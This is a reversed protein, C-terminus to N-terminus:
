KSLTIRKKESIVKEGAVITSSLLYVGSPLKPVIAQASGAKSIFKIKEPRMVCKGLVNFISLQCHSGPALNGFSIHLSGNRVQYVIEPCLNFPAKTLGSIFAALRERKGSVMCFDSHDGKVTSVEFDSACQEYGSSTKKVICFDVSGKGKLFSASIRASQTPRDGNFFEFPFVHVDDSKSPYLAIAGSSGDPPRIRIGCNSFSPPTPYLITDGPGDYAGCYITSFEGAATYAFIKISSAASPSKKSVGTSHYDGLLISSPPFRLELASDSPNFVTYGTGQRSFLTDSLSDISLTTGGYILEARYTKNTADAVWRYILLNEAGPGSASLVDSLALPFGFPVGFDTWNHPSLRIAYSSKLTPTLSGGFDIVSSKATILWLLTGPHCFFDTRNVSSYEIWKNTSQANTESPFWRFIRFISADYSNGADSFLSGLCSHIDPNDPQATLTIPFISNQLTTTADSHLRKARHSLDITDIFFGDSIIVFAKIGAAQAGTAPIDCLIKGTTAKVFGSAVPKNLAEGGVGRFFDWALNLSNDSASISDSLSTSDIFRVTDSLVRLTPRVTDALLVYPSHLDDTNVFIRQHATDIVAERQVVFIGASDKYLRCMSFTLGQPVANCHLAICFPPSPPPKILRMGTGFFVFGHLMSDPPVFAVMTDDHALLGDPYEPGKWFLVKGTLAKVTDYASSSFYSVPQKVSSAVRVTRTCLSDPLIWVERHKTWVSIIYSTDFVMSSLSFTTDKSLSTFHFSTIPSIQAGSAYTATIGADYDGGLVTSDSTWSLHFVLNATDFVCASITFVSQRSGSSEVPFSSAAVLALFVISRMM